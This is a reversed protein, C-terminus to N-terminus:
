NTEPDPEEDLPDCDDTGDPGPGDGDLMALLVLIELWNAAVPLKSDVPM